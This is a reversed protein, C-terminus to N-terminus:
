APIGSVDTLQVGLVPDLRCIRVYLDDRDVERSDLRVLCRYLLALPEAVADGAEWDELRHSEIQELLERLMPLAVTEMGAGVMIHAAQARRLFRARASREHGSERMLLEVAGRADGARAREQAIDFADRRGYTPRAPASGSDAESVTPADLPLLNSTRLWNLTEANATPNDDMLTLSPLEPLDGLMTRLASRLGARVAEYESGLADCAVIAYRQLDLWGRGFPQAMVQEAAELLEPYRGDLLLGKLRVRIETPPAALLKPNIREGNARLEGWRYGRLMLYSAPDTPREQRLRQAAAAIWAGAEDASRPGGAPLGGSAAAGPSAPISIDEVAAVEVPDPELELKRALLQGATPKVEQLSARLGIFSPASGAFRDRCLQDLQTITALSSDLDAVLQKYWSKPTAAFAADFEEPTVKGETIAEERATKKASNSDAEEKTPVTRSARYDAFSLRSATLPALRVAVDLRSGVWELPSARLELDDDDIPPYLHDWYQQLLDPLLGLGTRLGSFGERQLLAETLWAALQLDKSKKSLADTTLRVVLPWDSVKRTTQWDGQAVDEDARRAEKIQDYLPEYRLYTGAPNEGPIPALLETNSLM